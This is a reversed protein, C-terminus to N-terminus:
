CTKLKRQDRAEVRLHSLCVLIAIEGIKWTTPFSPHAPDSAPQEQGVRCIAAGDLNKDVHLKVPTLSPHERLVREMAVLGDDVEIVEHPTLLAFLHDVLVSSPVSVLDNWEGKTSVLVAKRFPVVHILRPLLQPLALREVPRDPTVWALGPWVVRLQM